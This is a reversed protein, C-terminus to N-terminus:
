GCLIEVCWVNREGVIVNRGDYKPDKRLLSVSEIEEKPMCGSLFKM